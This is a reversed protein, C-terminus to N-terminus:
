FRSTDINKVVKAKEKMQFDRALDVLKFDRGGGRVIEKVQAAPEGAVPRVIGCYCNLM